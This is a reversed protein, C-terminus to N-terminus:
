AVCVRNRGTRKAEYLAADAAAIWEAPAAVEKMACVGLSITVRLEPEEMLPQAAVALRAREAWEFAAKGDVDPLLIGFEEGGLRGLTDSTRMTQRLREALTRLVADGAPHGFTDNVKKFHDVDLLILASAMGSRKMRAIQKELELVFGRRTAAGTLHDTQAIRRLELEDVVLAAFSAMMQMQEESFERPRRDIACLAGVNYGDPTKLPVGLYSRIFPEGTVLPNDAFRSDLTADPINMAERRRITHTCFSVDRATGSGEVGVCSKFWQRNSDILTVTAIPVGLVMQVLKTIRDFPEEAPTDLVEYRQLAAIRGQEDNLRVDESQIDESQVDDSQVDESQVDEIKLDDAM